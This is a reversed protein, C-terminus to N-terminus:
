VGGRGGRGGKKRANATRREFSDSRAAQMDYYARERARLLRAPDREALAEEYTVKALTDVATVVLVVGGATVIHKGDDRKEWRVEARNNERVIM